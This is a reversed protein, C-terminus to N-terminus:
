TLWLIESGDVRINRIHQPKVDWLVFSGLLWAINHRPPLSAKEESTCLFCASSPSLEWWPHGLAAQTLRRKQPM